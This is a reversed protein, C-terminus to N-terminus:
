SGGAELLTELVGLIQPCSSSACRTVHFVFGDWLVFGGEGLLAGLGTQALFGRRPEM